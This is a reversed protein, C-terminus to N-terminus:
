EKLKLKILIHAAMIANSVDKSKLLENIVNFSDDTYEIKDKFVDMYFQCDSCEIFEFNVNYDVFVDKNISKYHDAIKYLYYPLDYEIVKDDM